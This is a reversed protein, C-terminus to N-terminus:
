MQMLRFAFGEIELSLDVAILQGNQIQKTDPKIAVGKQAFHAVARDIFNTGLAIFDISSAHQLEETTKGRFLSTETERVSFQVMKALESTAKFADSSSRTYLGIHRLEFGLVTTIAQRTCSAIKEFQGTKLMEPHVMWSGGCAIVKPFQLYSLLTSQEIGGTPIFKLSKFPAAVAKLYSLGGSAEAPFFKVVELDYELAQQMETPTVVGPIVPISKNLCHEVIKTSFGPSVIFRAGADIVTQADDVTLVTGAGVLMDPFDKAILEVVRVATHTRLTVEIVPLGNESLAKALPVAKNEDEVIAVPIVGLLEINKLIANM